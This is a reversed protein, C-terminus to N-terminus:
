RKVDLVKEQLAICFLMRMQLDSLIFYKYRTKRGACFCFIVQLISTKVTKISYIQYNLINSFGIHINNKLSSASFGM